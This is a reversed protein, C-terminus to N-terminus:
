CRAWCWARNGSGRGCCCPLGARFHELQRIRHITQPKLILGHSRVRNLTIWPAAAPGMWAPALPGTPFGPKDLNAQSGRHKEAHNMRSVYGLASHRRRPNYGGEIWTFVALRAKTKTRFTKRDILESELSALFREAMAIECADGVKGMLPRVGMERCRKGFALSANQSGQDSHHIVSEPKCSGLARNLVTELASLVLEARMHEGISRAVVRRSWVGIVTALYIFGQWTPVYTMDAVWLQKPADAVFQRKVLDPAPSRDPDRRITVTFGRRRSVGRLGAARMLREIRKHSM